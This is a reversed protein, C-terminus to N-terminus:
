AGQAGIGPTLAAEARSGIFILIGVLGAWLGLALFSIWGFPTLANLALLLSVWGLWKPLVGFRLIAVGAAAFVVFVGAILPLFMDNNIVTLTQTTDPTLHGANNAAVYSFGCFLLIGLAALFHGAFVLTALRGDGGEARWVLRRVSAGFWILLIAGLGGILSSAIQQNKHHTWWLVMAAPSADSDPTTPTLFEYVFILLVLVGTLPAYRELRTWM